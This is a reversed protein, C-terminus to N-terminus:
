GRNDSVSYYRKLGDVATVAGERSSKSSFYLKEYNGRNDGVRFVVYKETEPVGSLKELRYIAFNCTEASTGLEVTDVGRAPPRRVCRLRGFPAQAPGQGDFITNKLISKKARKM